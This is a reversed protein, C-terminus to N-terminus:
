AWGRSPATAHVGGTDFVASSLGLSGQVATRGEGLARPTELPVTRAPPSYLTPSCASALAALAVVTLAPQDM